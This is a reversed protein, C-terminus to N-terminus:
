KTKSKTVVKAMQKGTMEGRYSNIKFDSIKDDELVERM